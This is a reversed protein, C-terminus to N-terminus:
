AKKERKPWGLYQQATRRIYSESVTSNMRENFNAAVAEYSMDEPKGDPFTQLLDSYIKRVLPQRKPQSNHKSQAPSGFAPPAARLSFLMRGEADKAKGLIWDIMGYHPLVDPPIRIFSNLNSGPRAVIVCCRQEVARKLWDQLRSVMLAIWESIAERLRDDTIRDSNFKTLHFRIPANTPGNAAELLILTVEGSLPDISADCVGLHELRTTLEHALSASDWLECWGRGSRIRYVFPARYLPVWSGDEDFGLWSFSHHPIAPSMPFDKLSANLAV